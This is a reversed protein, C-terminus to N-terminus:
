VIYNSLVKKCLAIADELNGDFRGGAANKHGGGQFHDSALQNVPNEAGKSRFSIKIYEDGETFLIAARMGQISLAVNVLGETDGKQYNFRNLEAKTLSILAVKNPEIIELKESLAYGRLQLRDLTNTDYVAEHIEHPKVGADMLEALIRHTAAETSPFRFSGTDTMIGLYIARGIQLNLNSQLGADIMWEYILQSTSCKSSDSLILDFEDSPNLHHDIMIKQATSAELLAKMENGVRSFENYDLGFILDANQMAQTVETENKDFSLITETGELWNLFAPSADPHCIQANKGLTKCIEYLAVSSGISDGDPSKHATIVIHKATQIATRIDSSLSM